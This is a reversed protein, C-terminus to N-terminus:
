PPRPHGPDQTFRAHQFAMYLVTQPRSARPVPYAARNRQTVKPVSLHHDEVSDPKDAQLM